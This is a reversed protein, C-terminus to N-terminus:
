AAASAPGGPEVVLVDCVSDALVHRTVSGLLLDEVPSEGQKGMVILEAGSAKECDLIALAPDGHEVIPVFRRRDDDLSAVLADIADLARQRAALRYALIEDNSVGALWLKGEFPVTFAHFVTIQADPAIAAAARLAAVSAPSFDVPVLVDRYPTEAPRKVVLVPRRSRRVLVEATTGLLLDRLVRTGRAGLVLLDTREAVKLIEERVRGIRVLPTVEIGASGGIPRAVDDLMQAADASLKQEAEAPNRFMEALTQLSPGNLVHLLELSAQHETALLAARQVAHQADESFDTAVSLQRFERM